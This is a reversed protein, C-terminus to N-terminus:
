LAITQELIRVRAAPALEALDKARGLQTARLAYRSGCLAAVQETGVAGADDNDFAIVLTRPDIKEILGLQVTSLMNSFCAVAYWGAEWAAIADTAGETLVLIDVSIPSYNFLLHSTKIGPPYRYKRKRTEVLPRRVVGLVEGAANRLPYTAADTVVDYGLRFHAVTRPEFRTLWYECPPGADFQDLWTEPKPMLPEELADRVSSLVSEAPLQDFVTGDVKGSSHCVYCYWIGKVINVSASPHVDPHVPCNFKREWGHGTALADALTIVTAVV